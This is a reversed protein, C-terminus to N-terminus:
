LCMDRRSCLREHRGQRDLPSLQGLLDTSIPWQRRATRKKFWEKQEPGMMSKDPSEKMRPDDRQSRLDTLIFKARGISFSHCIPGDRDFLLPYHPVYEEYTRRAAEHTLSKRTAGNGGFDHDDWVYNFAVHRYLDAQEPSALVADYAARFRNIDNTRIDQYHFDGVNMYLLPDNERIRDFIDSASGTKACSAWAIKFSAPGAPPFTHFEGAKRSEIHGDVELAYHYCMNPELNALSHSSKNQDAESRAYVPDCNARFSGREQQHSPAGDERAPGILKAKVLASNPTVAGSWPGRDIISYDIRTARVSVCLRRRTAPHTRRAGTGIGHGTSSSTRLSYQAQRLQLPKLRAVMKRSHAPNVRGDHEGTLMLVAPYNTKRVHHYPSYAYLAKFQEPDKWAASSRSM